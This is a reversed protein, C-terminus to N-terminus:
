PVFEPLPLRLVKRAVAFMPQRLVPNLPDPRFSRPQIPAPCTPLGLWHLAPMAATALEADATM